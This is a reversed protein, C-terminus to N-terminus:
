AARESEAAGTVDDGYFDAATVEGNTVVAIRAMDDRRPLRVGHVWRTVTSHAKGGVLQGFAERTMNQKSLWAGLHM